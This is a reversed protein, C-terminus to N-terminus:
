TGALVTDILTRASHDSRVRASAARARAGFGAPDALVTQIAKLLGSASLDATSVGAGAEGVLRAMWTGETAVVPAGAALADLTVGSVRDGFDLARYPQLVIAGDFLARYAAADMAENRMSLGPYSSRRLRELVQTLESDQEHRAELSTQVVIPLTMGQLHMEDVLDVIRDIGKDIRAGGAVLLHKFPAPPTAAGTESGADLPYPVLTTQFGCRTFVEAVAATPALIQIHPQRRAIKRLMEAKSAKAGVWHVFCYLKRPPIRGAAAWDAMVLDASGATAILIRGPERLLRRLLWLGQLRRWRRRFFSQLLGPGRWVAAADRGAWITLEGVGAQTAAAALARVLSLCHGVDGTLRPEVIHLPPPRTPTMAQRCVTDTTDIL